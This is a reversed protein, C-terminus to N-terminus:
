LPRYLAWFITDQFFEPEQTWGSEVLTMHKGEQTIRQHWDSLIEQELDEITQGKSQASEWCLDTFGEFKLLHDGFWEEGVDDPTLQDLFVEVTNTQAENIISIFRRM